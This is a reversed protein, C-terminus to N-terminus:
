YVFPILRATHAAYEPYEEPFAAAMNEEEVRISMLFYAGIGVAAIVWGPGAAIASGIAALLMGSYIPHRVLRYPGSRVLKPQARVTMPLGWSRGLRLRAWTAFGLGGVCLAVGAWGIGHGPSTDGLRHSRLGLFIAVVLIVRLWVTRGRGRPQRAPDRSTPRYIRATVGWIVIWSIWCVAILTERLQM